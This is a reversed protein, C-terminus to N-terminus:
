GLQGRAPGLPQRQAHHNSATDNDTLTVSPRDSTTMGGGTLSAFVATEDEEIVRDDVPTLTMTGTASTSNAPITFVLFEGHSGIVAYDENLAATGKVGQEGEVYVLVDVPNPFTGGGDLTATFTIETAGDGEGVTAPTATLTYSDPYGPDDTFADSITTTRSGKRIVPRLGGGGQANSLTVTFDESVEFRTDALTSVTVTKTTETPLFTITSDVATYDTGAVALDGDAGTKFRVTVNTTRSGELKIVYTADSGETVSTPATEFSIVPAQPASNTLTIDTTSVTHCIATGYLRIIEDGEDLADHVPTVTLTATGTTANAPITITVPLSATYDDSIKATGSLSLKVVTDM